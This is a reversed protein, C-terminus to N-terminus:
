TRLRLRAYPFEQLVGGSWVAVLIPRAPWNVVFKVAYVSDNPGMVACVIRDALASKQGYSLSRWFSQSVSVGAYRLIRLDGRAQIASVHQQDTKMKAETCGAAHASWSAAVFILSLFLVTFQRIKV